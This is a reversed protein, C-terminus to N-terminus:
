VDSPKKGQRFCGPQKDNMCFRIKYIRTNIKLLVECTTSVQSTQATNM